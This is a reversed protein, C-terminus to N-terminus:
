IWKLITEVVKTEPLGRLSLLVRSVGLTGQANQYCHTCLLSCLSSLHCCTFDDWDERKGQWYLLCDVLFCTWNRHCTGHTFRSNNRNGMWLSVDILSNLMYMNFHSCLYTLSTVQLWTSGSVLLCSIVSRLCTGHLLLEGLPFCPMLWSHICYFANSTHSLGPSSLVPTTVMNAQTHINFMYIIHTGESHLIHTNCIYRM